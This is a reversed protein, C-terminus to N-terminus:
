RKRSKERKKVEEKDGYMRKDALERLADYMQEPTPMDEENVDLVEKKTAYGVGFSASVNLRQRKWIEKFKLRLEQILEQTKNENLEIEPNTSYMMFEDSGSGCRCINLKYEPHSKDIEKMAEAFSRLYMDGPTHTAGIDNVQKLNNLDIFFLTGEPQEAIYQIVYSKFGSEIKLKTKADVLSLNKAKALKSIFTPRANKLVRRLLEEAQHESIPKGMRNSDRIFAVVKRVLYEDKNNIFNASRQLQGEVSESPQLRRDLKTGRHDSSVEQHSIRNDGVRRHLPEIPM